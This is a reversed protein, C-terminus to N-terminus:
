KRGEREKGSAMQRIIELLSHALISKNENMRKYLQEKDTIKKGNSMIYIMKEALIKSNKTEFFCVENEPYGKIERNIAIDSVICPVGVSISDLVCNGGPNGEYLTMQILGIAGKLIQIQESKPIYGLFHINDRCKLSDIQKMLQEFYSNNRYDNMAGTCIIHIDIHGQKYLFELACFATIHSKHQWFQNSIIFYKQPLNYKEVDAIQDGIWEEVCIPCFPMCYINSTHKPYFKEIDNKTDLSTVLINPSQMVQKEFQVSLWNREEVSFLEPMYKHQFDPIYTMYPVDLTENDYFVAPFCIEIDHKHLIRKLSRNKNDIKWFHIRNYYIIQFAPCFRKYNEIVTKLQKKHQVYSSIELRKKCKEHLWINVDKLFCFLRKEGPLLLYLQINEGQVTKAYDLAKGLDLLLDIGGGWGYLSEGVVGIKM